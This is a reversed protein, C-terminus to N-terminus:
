RRRIIIVNIDPALGIFPASKRAKKISHILHELSARTHHTNSILSLSTPIFSTTHPVLKPWYGYLLISTALVVYMRTWLKLLEEKAIRQKSSCPDTTLCRKTSLGITMMKTDSLVKPEIRCWFNGICLQDLLYPSEVLTIYLSLTYNNDRYSNCFHDKRFPVSHVDILVIVDFISTYMSGWCVLEWCKWFARAQWREIADM